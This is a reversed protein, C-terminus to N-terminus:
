DKFSGGANRYNIIRNAIEDSIGIELLMDLAVMNPDFYAPKLVTRTRRNSINDPTRSQAEIIAVLSDLVKRDEVESNGLAPFFNTLFYPAVLILVM